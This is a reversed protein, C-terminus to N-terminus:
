LSELLSVIAVLAFLAFVARVAISLIREPLPAIPEYAVRERQSRRSPEQRKGGSPEQQGPADREDPGPPRPPRDEWAPSWSRPEDAGGPAPGSAPPMVLGDAPNFEVHGQEIAYGYLARLASVVSRIRSDSLHDAGLRDVLTQVDSRRLDRLRLDGFDPMVHYELIGRLDRLASPRYPRGSRNAARGSQAADIFEGVAAAVTIDQPRPAAGLDTTASRADTPTWDYPSLDRV